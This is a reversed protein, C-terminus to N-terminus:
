RFPTSTPTRTSTATTTFRATATSRATASATRLLATPTPTLKVLGTIRGQAFTVWEPKLSDKPMALLSQYSRLAVALEGLEELSRASWYLLEAKQSPEKALAKAREFQMYADGPYDLGMLAQGVGLSADFLSSDTKLATQFDSLAAKADSEGLLLQGRIVYTEALQNGLALAQDIATHANKSNKVALHAKALLTWGEVDQPRYVTYTNLPDLSGQVDDQAQLAKGILLYADLLTIDLQNAQRANEYALKPNKQQMYLDARYLPVLPSGPLLAAAQNLSGLAADPQNSLMQLEALALYVEGNKPDQKRAIELDALADKLAKPDAGITTRARGLYAPGYNPHDAILQTFQEKAQRYNGEQRYAESLYYKVDAASPEMTVVQSLYAEANSWDGRQFARMGIRYAESAPHPTNIYLATPTYTAELLMWLPAPSGSPVPTPTATQTIAVGAVAGTETPFIIVPMRRIRNQRQAGWIAFGVLGVVLFLAAGMLAWQSKSVSPGQGAKEEAAVKSQWNRKQYRAPFVQDPDPPIAGLLLLGRKAAANQPDLRSAEKLCFTREKATEVVASMWVWYEPNAQGAKLLRTLLDRARAREGAQIASLAENFM